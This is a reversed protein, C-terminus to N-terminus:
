CISDLYGQLIVVAAMTDVMKRRKKRNMNSAIMGKQASVTSLREDWLIVKVNREQEIMAKFDHSIQARIGEDGNMHRPLGLVVRDAKYEDIYRVVENLASQYDDEEFRITTVGSAIMGLVDSVAVGCTRSGLDLGIIRNM